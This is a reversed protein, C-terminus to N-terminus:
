KFICKIPYEKRNNKSIKGYIIDSVKNIYITEHNRKFPRYINLNAQLRKNM